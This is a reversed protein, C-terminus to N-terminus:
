SASAAQEDVRRRLWNAAARADGFTLGQQKVTNLYVLWGRYHRYIAIEQGRYSMSWFDSSESPKHRMKSM